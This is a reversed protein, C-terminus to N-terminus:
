IGIVGADVRVNVNIHFCTYSLHLRWSPSNWGALNLIAWRLPAYLPSSKFNKRCVSLTFGNSNATINFLARFTYIM